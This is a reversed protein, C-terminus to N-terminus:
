GRKNRRYRRALPSTELDAFLPDAHVESPKRYFPLYRRLTASCQLEQAADWLADAHDLRSVRYRGYFKCFLQVYAQDPTAPEGIREEVEAFLRDAEERRGVHFLLWAKYAAASCSLPRLAEMRDIRRLAAGPGFKWEDDRARAWHYAAFLRRIV